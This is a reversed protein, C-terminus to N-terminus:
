QECDQAHVRMYVCVCLAVSHGLRLEQSAGPEKRGRPRQVAAGGGLPRSRTGQSLNLQTWRRWSVAGQGWLRGAQMQARDDPARGKHRGRVATLQELVLVTDKRRMEPVNGPVCFTHIPVFCVYPFSVKDDLGQLVGRIQRGRAGMQGSVRRDEGPGQSGRDGALGLAEEEGVEQREAAKGPM